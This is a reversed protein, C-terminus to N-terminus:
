VIETLKEAAVEALIKAAEAETKASEAKEALDDATERAEAAAKSAVKSAAKRGMVFFRAEDVKDELEKMKQEYAKPDVYGTLNAEDVFIHGTENGGKTMSLPTKSSAASLLGNVSSEFSGMLKHNGSKEEDFVVVRVSEDLDGSSLECLDVDAEAWLPDLCNKIANSVYVNAWKGDAEAPKQIVFFPDSKGFFEIDKLKEGRLKFSFTGGFEQSAVEDAFEKLASKADAEATEAEALQEAVGTAEAEKAEATVQADEAMKYAKAAEASKKDAEAKTRMAAVALNIANRGVHRPDVYDILEASVIHVDGVTHGNKNINIVSNSSNALLIGNVSREFSGMFDHSGDHDHDYILFKMRGDLNGDCLDKIHIETEPWVPSLSDKILGSTYVYHGSCSKIKFFPDSKDRSMGLFGETNKLGHARIKVKLRGSIVHEAAYVFVIGGGDIKRGDVKKELLDSLSFQTQGLGSGDGHSCVSVSLAKDEVDDVEFVFVKDWDPDVSGSVVETRGLSEDNLSVIAYSETVNLAKAGICLHLKM